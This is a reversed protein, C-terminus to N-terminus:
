IHILSLTQLVVAYPYLTQEVTRSLSMLIALTVGIAMALVLGILAVQTTRWLSHLMETLNRSILFGKRVVDHPYPQFQNRNIPSSYGHSTLYWLGILLGLVAIPPVIRGALRGISGRTSTGSM